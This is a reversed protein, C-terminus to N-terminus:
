EAKTPRRELGEPSFQIIAALMLYMATVCLSFLGSFVITRPNALPHRARQWIDAALETTNFFLDWSNWRPFRGLYVGFGVLSLVALTFIWGAAVGASRRVLMHMLYLSVLGLFTGTWAFAILLILDYWLPVGDRARLHLLDTLIYPANPFFLLWLFVCPVILVWVGRTDSRKLNYATLAAIMPLWALFLNWALGAYGFADAYVARVVLLTGCLVSAFALSAVVAIQRSEHTWLHTLKTM